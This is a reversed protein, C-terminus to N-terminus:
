SSKEFPLWRLKKDKDLQRLVSLPAAGSLRRRQGPARSVGMTAGSRSSADPFHPIEAVLQQRARVM